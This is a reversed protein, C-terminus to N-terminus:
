YDDFEQSNPNYLYDSPLRSFIDWLEAKKEWSIDMAAIRNGMETINQLEVTNLYQQVDHPIKRNIM